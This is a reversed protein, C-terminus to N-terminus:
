QKEILKGKVMVLSHKSQSIFKKCAATSIDPCSRLDICTLNSCRRMHDLSADTLKKCGSVNLHTLTDRTVSGVAGLLSIGADTVKNCHSTDLLTLLRLHQTVYRLAVDTIDCGSLCLRSLNRLRTRSEILGPRSDPPPSLLERLLSDHFGEVFKLDLSTLMPTNCTRLAMVSASSCGSLDLHRLQPLRSMLWGLLKKSINTWALVLSRPQRRVLGALHQAMIQRRTLDIHQWLKSDLCWQNWAKCVQMCRCLDNRCLYPFVSIMVDRDLAYNVYNGSSRDKSENRSKEQQIPAPRVVYLPKRLQTKGNAVVRPPVRTPSQTILNRAQLRGSVRNGPSPADSPPSQLTESLKRKRQLLDADCKEVKVECKMLGKHRAETRVNAKNEDTPPTNGNQAALVRSSVRTKQSSQNTSAAIRPSARPSLQPSERDETPVARGQSCSRVHMESEMKQPSDTKRRAYKPIKEEKDFSKSDINRRLLCLPSAPKRELFKDEENFDLECPIEVKIKKKLLSESAEGSLQRKKMHLEPSLISASGVVATPVLTPVDLPPKLDMSNSGGGVGDKAIDPMMGGINTLLPPRLLDSPKHRAGKVQRPKSQGGKGNNCCRPCEWSNPLDENMVGDATGLRARLCDPHVIEWCISCEMLSSVEEESNEAKEWGDKGCVMCCATHPLVPAMCQRSICSQKMRGPGGFKRMDKCFHCEGCDTRLCAECKKCRTRRRRASSNNKSSGSKSKSGGGSSPSPRHKGGGVSRIKKPSDPWTLTPKGTIALKPDDNKHLELLLRVDNLLANPNKILEPVNKKTTPLNTLWKLIAKLGSIELLSLHVPPRVGSTAATPSATTATATNAAAAASAAVATAAAATAAAAAALAEPSEFQPLTTHHMRAVSDLIRRVAEVNTPDIRGDATLGEPHPFKPASVAFAATPNYFPVEGATVLKGFPILPSASTAVAPPKSQPAGAAAAAAALAVALQPNGIFSAEQPVTELAPAAATRPSAPPTMMTGNPQREAEGAAAAGTSTPSTESGEKEQKSTKSPSDHRHSVPALHSRGLLCHVYRELLYWLIETYFPYRFKAPVRTSDEIQAIRLQKEIGFCHLFNGGFVLSDQPTFVAHIWGTPIFFTWGEELTIRGCKEVTDGFFVDGQKGSLVWTEYLQLNKETPPILWFVKSGHLIHYWVSTGGFDIHFDTYCGKVSMLCYKQVKPYKMDEIINTAETQSQKLHRPWVRDVWDMERVVTPSEVYNELKTHSFELSIVNLLKDRVPNEYYKVWDKMSMEIDKQTTVDMVDLMRRSGVCQRVDNVTFNKSPLRMGLGAKERIMVPTEFGHEQLHRLNFDEGKVEKVFYTCFRESSLKDEVSFMRKGEIEEDNIADETYHKREKQRLRSIRDQSDDSDM